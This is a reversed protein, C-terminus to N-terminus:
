DSRASLVGTVMDKRQYTCCIIGTGQNLKECSLGHIWIAHNTQQVETLIADGGKHGKELITQFNLFTYTSTFM